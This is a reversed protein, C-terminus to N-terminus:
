KLPACSDGPRKLIQAEVVPVSIPMAAAEQDGIEACTKPALGVNGREEPYAYLNRSANEDRQMINGCACRLVDLRKKSMEKRIEGCVSCIQSSPYFRDAEILKRRQWDAKYAIQRLFDGMGADATARSHLKSKMMGAVNLSEVVLTDAQRVLACTAQHAVNKRINAIKQHLRAVRRKAAERRQSGKVRRSVRRQYRRLQALRKELAKPNEFLIVKEGDFATALTKLGMDIGIREVKPIEYAPRECEFVSSLYWKGAECWVRSSLLRGQPQDGCRYRVEGLKPLKVKGDCFETTQNVMYVSFQRQFKGRFKPRKARKEFWNKFARQMDECLALIAHAPIDKMWATEPRHKLSVMFSQLASKKPWKGVEDRQKFCWELSENWIRRLGGQWRRVSAAQERNLYLRSVIARSVFESM